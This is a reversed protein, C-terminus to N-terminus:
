CYNASLVEPLLPFFFSVYVIFSAPSLLSLPHPFVYEWGWKWGGVHQWRQFSTGTGGPGAPMM